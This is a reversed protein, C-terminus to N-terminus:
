EQASEELNQSHLDVAIAFEKIPQLL